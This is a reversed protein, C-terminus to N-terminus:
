LCSIADGMITRYYTSTFTSSVNANIEPVDVFEIQCSHHPACPVSELETVTVINDGAKLVSSPVFLTKQPGRVPWYRGINFNNIEVHGKYWGDLRLFTDAPQDIHLIGLYTSPVFKLVGKVNGTGRLKACHQMLSMNFRFNFIDWTSVNQTSGLTVNSIIGKSGRLIGSGYGVRGMNDVLITLSDGAKGEVTVETPGDRYIIGYFLNNVLVYGRDRIGPISLKVRPADEKLIHRYLLYGYGTDMLESRIPFPVHVDPFGRLKSLLPACEHLPGQLTVNLKGFAVKTSNKPPDM